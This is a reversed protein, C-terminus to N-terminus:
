SPSDGTAGGPERSEGVALIRVHLRNYNESNSVFIPLLLLLATPYIYVSFCDILGVDITTASYPSLHQLWVFM